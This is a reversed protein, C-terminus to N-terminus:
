LEQLPQLPTYGIKDYSSVPKFFSIYQFQPNFHNLGGLQQHNYIAARQALDKARSEYNKKQHTMPYTHVM